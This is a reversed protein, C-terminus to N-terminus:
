LYFAKGTETKIWLESESANEKSHIEIPEIWFDIENNIELVLWCHATIKMM